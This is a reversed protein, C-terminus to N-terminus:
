WTPAMTPGVTLPTAMPRQCGCPKTAAITAAARIPASAIAKTRRCGRQAKGMVRTQLFGLGHVQMAEADELGCAIFGAAPQRPRAAERLALNPQSVMPAGIEDSRFDPSTVGGM